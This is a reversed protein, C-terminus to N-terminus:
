AGLYAAGDTGVRRKTRKTTEQLMEKRTSMYARNDIAAKATGFGNQREPASDNQHKIKYVRDDIATEATTFGNQGYKLFEKTTWPTSSMGSLMVSTHPQNLQHPM